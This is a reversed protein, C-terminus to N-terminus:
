DVADLDVIAGARRRDRPEDRALVVPDFRKAFSVDHPRYLSSRRTAECQLPGGDIM